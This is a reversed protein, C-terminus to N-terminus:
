HFLKHGRIATMQIVDSASFCYPDSEATSQIVTEMGTQQSIGNFSLLDATLQVLPFMISLLCENRIVELSFGEHLM